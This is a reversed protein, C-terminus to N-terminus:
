QANANKKRANWMDFVVKMKPSKPYVFCMKNCQTRSKDYLVDLVEDAGADHEWYYAVQTMNTIYWVNDSDYQKGTLKSTVNM